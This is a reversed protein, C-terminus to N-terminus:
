RNRDGIRQCSDRYRDACGFRRRAEAEAKERTMRAGVLERVTMELHFDFEDRVTQRVSPASIRFRSRNPERPERRM